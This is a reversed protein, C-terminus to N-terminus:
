SAASILGDRVDQKLDLKLGGGGIDLEGLNIRKKAVNAVYCAICM